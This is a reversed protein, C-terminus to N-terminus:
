LCSSEGGSDELNREEIWQKFMLEMNQCDQRNVTPVIQSAENLRLFKIFRRLEFYFRHESYPVELLSLQGRTVIKVDALSAEQNEDRSHTWGTPKVGLIHDFQDGM